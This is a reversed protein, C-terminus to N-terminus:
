AQGTGHLPSPGFDRVRALVALPRASSRAPPPTTRAAQRYPAPVPVVEDDFDDGRSVPLPRRRMQPDRTADFYGKLLGLLVAAGLALIGAAAIGANRLSKPQAPPTAREVIRV